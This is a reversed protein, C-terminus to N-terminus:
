ATVAERPKRNKRAGSKGKKDTDEEDAGATITEIDSLLKADITPAKDADEDASEGAKDSATEASKDASKDGAKAAWAELERYGALLSATKEKLGELTELEEKQEKSEKRLKRNADEAAKRAAAEDLKQKKLTKLKKLINDPTDALATNIAKLERQKNEVERKAKRVAEANDQRGTALAQEAAERGALAEDRQREAEARSKEAKKVEGQMTGIEATARNRASLIDADADRARKVAQDLAERLEEATFDAGLKLASAAENMLVQKGIALDKWIRLQQETETQSM